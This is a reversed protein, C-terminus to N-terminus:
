LSTNFIIRLARGAHFSHITVAVYWLGSKKWSPAIEDTLSNLFLSSDLYVDWMHLTWCNPTMMDRSQFLLLRVCHFTTHWSLCGPLQAPLILIIQPSESSHSTPWLISEQCSSALKAPSLFVCLHANHLQYSMSCLNSLSIFFDQLFREWIISQNSHFQLDCHWDWPTFFSERWSPFLLFVFRLVNSFSNMDSRWM